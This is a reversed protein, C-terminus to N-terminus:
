KAIDDLHLHCPRPEMEVFRSFHCVMVIIYANGYEDKPLPGITDMAVRAFLKEKITTALSALISGQAHKIKQCIACENIFNAVYTGMDM